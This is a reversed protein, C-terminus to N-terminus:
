VSFLEISLAGWQLNLAIPPTAIAIFYCRLESHRRYSVTFSFVICTVQTLFSELTYLICYMYYLLLIHLEMVKKELPSPSVLFFETQRPPPGHGVEPLKM